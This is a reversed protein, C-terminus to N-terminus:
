CRRHLQKVATAVVEIVSVLAEVVASTIEAVTSAQKAVGFVVGAVTSAQEIVTSAVGAVASAQEVVTTTPPFSVVATSSLSVAILSIVLLRVDDGWCRATATVPARVCHGGSLPRLPKGSLRKRFVLGDQVHGGDEARDTVRSGHRTGDGTSSSLGDTSRRGDDVPFNELVVVASVQNRSPRPAATTVVGKKQNGHM